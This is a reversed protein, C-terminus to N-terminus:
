FFPVALDGCDFFDLALFFFRERGRSKADLFFRPSPRSSQLLLLKFRM